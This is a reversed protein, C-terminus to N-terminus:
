ECDHDAYSKIEPVECAPIGKKVTNVTKVVVGDMCDEMVTMVVGYNGLEKDTVEGKANLFDVQTVTAKEAADLSRLKGDDDYVGEADVSDM